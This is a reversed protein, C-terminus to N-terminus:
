LRYNLGAFFFRGRPGAPRALTGLYPREDFANNLGGYVSLREGFEYGANFDHVIGRGTRLPDVFLPNADINQNEINPLLQSAEYRMSWGLSLNNLSWRANVNTIWEPYAFEGVRDQFVTTDIPDQFEKWELLHTGTVGIDLNGYSGLSLDYNVGFDVGSTELSGLNVQGSQHFTIFGAPDRQILPCFVNDTSQLDVCAESVREASLADIAGDIKIDYYDVIVRLGPVFQSPELVLGYTITEATEESLDPNGGVVGPIGATIFETVDYGDPVFQACNAARFQSGANINQISCPDQLFPYTAPQQPSFLESINPARVAESLTGRFTIGPYPSWRGGISWAENSGITSYDAFRMAGTVELYDIGPLDALLPAQAEVFYEFVDFEGSLGERQNGNSGDWTIGISEFQSVSFESTEERYEFGAAWGVPGAPLEFLSSSTGTLTGLVVTQELETKDVASVYVFDAYEPTAANRGLPNFPVCSGDGPQFTVFETFRGTNTFNDTTFNPTPFAAGVWPLATPDLDSRCVIEGSEPDVITDLAAYFRDEIRTDEEDVTVDTRGFNYSLEYQVGDLVDFEGELGLVIRTTEREVTTRPLVALDSTDRSAGFGYFSGDNPNPPIIGESQLYAIQELLDDSLYPNDYAIPISDNFDAVGIRESNESSVYKSELFVSHRETLDFSGNLNVVVRDQSPFLTGLTTGLGDGVLYSQSTNIAFGPNYARPFGNVPADMVQLVPIGGTIPGGPVRGFGASGPIIPMPDGPRGSGIVSDITGFADISTLDFVGLPSSIPNGEPRVYIRSAAPNLGVLTAVEPANELDDGINPGTFPRSSDFVETNRLYEVGLVLGARGDLFEFGGAGSVLYEQGDNRGSIGSQATFELGDFDEADKMVFNVVGTVADAGYVSSAGGTLTEVRKVMTNPISNIDVATTGQSGGVHRRGNVLVLTRVTGLNRLNLFGIGLDSATSGPTGDAPDQFAAFNSPLSANLAPSERLLEGLDSQGGTRIDDASITTVPSASDVASDVAIRSGTVVVEEINFEEEALARSPAGLAAPVALIATALALRKWAGPRDTAAHVPCVGPRASASATAIVSSPSSPM